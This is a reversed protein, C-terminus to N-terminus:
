EFVRSISTKLFMGPHTVCLVQEEAEKERSIVRIKKGSFNLFIERNEQFSSRFIEPLWDSNDHKRQAM